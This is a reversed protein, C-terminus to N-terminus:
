RDLLKMVNIRDNLETVMDGFLVSANSNEAIDIMYQLTDIMKNGNQLSYRDAQYEHQIVRDSTYHAFKHHGVEHQMIAELVYRPARHACHDNLVIINEDPIYCAGPLISDPVQTVGTILDTWIYCKIGDVWFSPHLELEFKFLELTSVENMKERATNIEEIVEFLTSM